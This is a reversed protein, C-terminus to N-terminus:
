KGDLRWVDNFQDGPVNMAEVTRQLLVRTPGDDPFQKLLNALTQTASLFDRQEFDQLASEYSSKLSQWSSDPDLALEYLLLPSQINVVRVRALKRVALSDDLQAATYQSILRPCRLHKTAGQIRSGLNVTNGLPGYKFKQKSGTNGVRAEGSNIGIGVSFPEGLTPQWRQNLAPLTACMDLAARCARQAHDPQDDPAGWMCLLEDGVYDVLVGQHRLVCESLASLVDHIWDVTVRAGMRESIHSFGRIDCFLVTVQRDQGSLLSPNLELKEALERSFFQEFKTRQELAESRAQTAQQEQELRALGGAVAAALIEVLTAEAESIAGHGTGVRRDGYVVGHVTGDAALMPSAIVCDIGTLSREDHAKPREGFTCKELKVRQLMTTSPRRTNTHGPAEYRALPTWEDGRHQLVFVRDLDVIRAVTEAADSLFQQSTATQKLVEVTERLWALLTTTDLPAAQTWDIRAASVSELASHRSPPKAIPLSALEVDEAEAAEADSEVRISRNGFALVVPRDLTAFQTEGPGLVGCQDCHFRQNNSINTLELRGDALGRLRIFQRPIQTETKNAIVIRAGDDLRAQHYPAPEIARGDRAVQQRGIVLEGRLVTEWVSQQHEFFSLRLSVAVPPLATSSSDRPQPMEPMPAHFATEGVPLSLAFGNSRAKFLLVAAIIRYATAGPLPNVSRNAVQRTGFYFVSEVPPRKAQQIM